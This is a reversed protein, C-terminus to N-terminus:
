NCVCPTSGLPALLLLLLLLLLQWVQRSALSPASRHSRVHRAAWRTLAFRVGAKNTYGALNVGGNWKLMFWDCACVCVYVRMCVCLSIAVSSATHEKKEPICPCGFNPTDPKQEKLRAREPTWQVSRCPVGACTVHLLRLRNTTKRFLHTHSRFPCTACSLSFACKHAACVM